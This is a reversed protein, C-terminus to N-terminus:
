PTYFYKKNYTKLLLLSGFMLRIYSTQWIIKSFLVMTTTNKKKKTSHTALCLMKKAKLLDATCARFVKDTQQLKDRVNGVILM